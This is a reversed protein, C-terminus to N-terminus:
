YIGSCKTSSPLFNYLSCSVRAICVVHSIYAIKNMSHAWNNYLSWLVQTTYMVYSIYAIKNM